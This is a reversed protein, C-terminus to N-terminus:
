YFLSNELLVPGHLPHTFTNFKKYKDKKKNKTKKKKNQSIKIM